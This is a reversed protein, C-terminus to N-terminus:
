GMQPNKLGLVRSYVKRIREYHVAPSHNQEVTKRAARGMDGLALRMSLFKDMKLALDEPDGVEYLLGTEGEKIQEPISGIRAGLVPKGLAMSEYVSLPTNEYWRSPCVTFMAGRIAEQLRDLSQFHDFTINRINKEQVYDRIRRGESTDINGVIKLPLDPKLREFARVLDMVGKERTIRGFYLIYGDSDYRPSFRDTDVFSPVQVIKDKDFGYEVMKGMLFKSPSVFLGTKKAMGRKRFATLAMVRALTAAGSQHVCRYRLAPWLSTRCEECARDDRFFHEMPCLLQYSSMRSVVPIGREWCADIVSYSLFTNIQFTQVLDPKEADLLAGLKRKAELSYISNAAFRLKGLLSLNLDTFYIQDSKGPPDVFYHSFPTDQNKQYAVSFPVVQHGNSELLSKLSFLYREPGGSVFYRYNCFVIKM